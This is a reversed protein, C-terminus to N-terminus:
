KAALARWTRGNDHSAALSNGQRFAFMRSPDAPDVALHIIAFDGAQPSLLKWNLDPERARFLGLGVLFTYVTGDGLTHVVSALARSPHAPEWYRGGDTSRYLGTTTALFLTDANLSSAALSIADNRPAGVARWTHGGDRSVQLTGYMGYIVRPDAKSVDMQHFDVPGNVGPSLRRWTRGGDDSRQFGLNGGLAPHGSSFLVGRATPHHTFGMFDDPHESVREVTLDPSLLYLGHHTAIFLRAPNAREVALGHVHTSGLMRALPIREQALADGGASIGLALVM